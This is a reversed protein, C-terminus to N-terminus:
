RFPEHMRRRIFQPGDRMSPLQQSRVVGAVFTVPAPLWWGLALHRCRCCDAVDSVSFEALGFSLEPRVATGSLQRFHGCWEALRRQVGLLAVPLKLDTEPRRALTAPPVNM